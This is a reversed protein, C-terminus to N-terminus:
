RSFVGTHPPSSDLLKFQWGSVHFYAPGKLSGMSHLFRPEGQACASLAANFIATNPAISDQNMQAFLDLALRWHGAKECAGILASYTIVSRDCGEEAQLVHLM